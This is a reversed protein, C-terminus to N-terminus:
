HERSHCYAEYAAADMLGGLEGPDSATFKIMWAKGYPEHNVAEPTDSLTENIETISGSLPMYVEASAKVSEVSGFAEGQKLTQGVSPLEVFVIDSLQSRAYDTIGATAVSGAM